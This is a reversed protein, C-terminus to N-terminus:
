LLGRESVLKDAIEKCPPCAKLSSLREPWHYEAQPRKHKDYYRQVSAFGNWAGAKAGCAAAGGYDVFFHGEDGFGNWMWSARETRKPMPFKARGVLMTQKQAKAREAAKKAEEAQQRQQREAKLADDFQQLEVSSLLSLDHELVANATKNAPKM